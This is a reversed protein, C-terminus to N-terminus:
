KHIVGGSRPGRVIFALISGLVILVLLPALLSALLGWVLRAAIAVAILVLLGSLVKSRWSTATSM